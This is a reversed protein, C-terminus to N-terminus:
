AALDPRRARFPVKTPKKRGPVPVFRWVVARTSERIERPLRDVAIM